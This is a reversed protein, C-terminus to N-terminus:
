DGIRLEVESCLGSPVTEWNAYYPPKYGINVINIENFIKWNVGRRDYDAIRNAPLNTVEIRLKNKGAILLGSLDIEFPAAWVVGAEKGNLFVRASERVDGLHLYVQKNLDAANFEFTTEYAATGANIKLTPCDIETWSHLNQLTFTDKVQPESQVFYMKWVNNLAFRKQEQASYKWDALDSQKETFTKLFVSQGSKLDMYVQTRGNQQRVAAKGSKGTMPDFFEASEANVALTVWERTDKKTCHASLIYIDTTMRVVFLMYDM